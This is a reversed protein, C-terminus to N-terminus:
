FLRCLGDAPLWRSSALGAALCLWFCANTTEGAHQGFDLVDVQSGLAALARAKYQDRVSLDALRPDCGKVVRRTHRRFRTKALYQARAIESGYLLLTIAAAFSFGCEELARTVTQLNFGLTHLANAASAEERVVSDSVPM